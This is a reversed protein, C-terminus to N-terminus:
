FAKAMTELAVHLECREGHGDSISELLWLSKLAASPFHLLDFRIKSRREYRERRVFKVVSFDAALDEKKM